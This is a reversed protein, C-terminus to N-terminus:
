PGEDGALRAAVREAAVYPDLTRARLAGAIESNGELMVAARQRLREAVM